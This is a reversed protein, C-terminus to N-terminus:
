QLERKVPNLKKQISDRKFREWEVKIISISVSVGEIKLQIYSDLLGGLAGLEM